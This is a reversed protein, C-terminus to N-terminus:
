TDRNTHFIVEVILGQGQQKNKLTISINQLDAIEKSIALGLGCGITQSGVVRYFRDFVREQLKPDIGPGSDNVVLKIDQSVDNVVEVSVFGKEPTYRVANDILNRLLISLSIPEILVNCNKDGTIEINISRALAEPALESVVEVAFQYVNIKTAQLTNIRPDIRALTLMQDLLHQSRDVGNVVQKLAQKQQRSDTARLAVQAQTKVAAIPTRLEHAADDTFRRENEFAKNLHSFLVNLENVLPRIEIPVPGIDMPELHQPDRRTVELVVKNVPILGRGIGIWILVGLIPFAILAPTILVRSIGSILEKRVDYREAVQILFRDNEDWLNFVRWLNEGIKEDLYGRHKPLLAKDSLSHPPASASKFILRKGKDWVQFAIKREYEHGYLSVEDKALTLPAGNSGYEIIKKLEDYRGNLLDPLIISQLVRASQALQADFLEQVEHTAEEYSLAITIFSVLVIISMLTILLRQRISNNM